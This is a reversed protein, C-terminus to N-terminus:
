KTRTQKIAVPKARRAGIVLLSTVIMLGATVYLITM